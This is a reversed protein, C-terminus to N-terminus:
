EVLESLALNWSLQELSYDGEVLLEGKRPRAPRAPRTDTPADPRAEVLAAICRALRQVATEIQEHSPFSFNLRFTNLGGGDCHFATGNVYTVDERLAREFLTRSELWRPLTVWLFLGGEPRTWRVGWVPDIHRDLADLMVQRKADYMLRIRAIQGQLRGTRLYERAVLQSLGSTCVDVPQKTIVLRAIIEPAALVWGLRLGPFLTKSFTFLSIVRGDRDLSFMTPPPEGVYRLQRYPSDEVILLDFDRAMALIQERRELTLTVGAPNQFDPVLYVFKPRVGQRRLDVLRQELLDVRIGDDDLPVGSLRAGCATFAGLAGLYSPLGCIVADRPSLFMRSCLDLGQQSATTPLVHEPTLHSFADGEVDVMLRILERRLGLDGETIGYQLAAAGHERLVGPMMEVLDSIPFADPPPLGGALSIVGPRAIVKLLERIDNKTAARASDSLFQQLYTTDM